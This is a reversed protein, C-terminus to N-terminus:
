VSLSVALSTLTAHAYYGTGIEVIEIGMGNRVRDTGMGIVKIGDEGWGGIHYVHM